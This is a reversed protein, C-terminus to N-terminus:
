RYKESMGGRHGYNCVQQKEFVGGTPKITLLV